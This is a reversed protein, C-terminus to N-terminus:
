FRHPSFLSAQKINTTQNTIYDSIIKGGLIAYSLGSRGHGTNIFINDDIRGVLPYHDPTHYVHGQWFYEFDYGGFQKFYSKLPLKSLDYDGSYDVFIRNNYFSLYIDSDLIKIPMHLFPFDAMPKTCAASVPVSCLVNNLGSEFLYMFNNSCVVAQKCVIPKHKGSTHIMLGNQSKTIQLVDVHGFLRQGTLECIGCLGYLLQYMNLTNTVPLYVGHSFAQTPVIQSLDDRNLNLISDHKLPPLKSNDIAVQLEGTYNFDCALTEKKIINRLLRNNLRVAYFADDFGAVNLLSPFGVVGNSRGSAHYGIDTKDLLIANVGHSLLHYITSLGAIGGGIVVVDVSVPLESRMKLRANGTDFWYNIRAVM